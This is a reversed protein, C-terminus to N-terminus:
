RRGPPRSQAPCWPSSRRGPRRASAAARALVVEPAVMAGGRLRLLDRRQRVFFVEFGNLPAATDIRMLPAKGLQQMPQAVIRFLSSLEGGRELVAVHNRGRQAADGIGVPRLAADAGHTVLPHPIWLPAPERRLRKQRLDIRQQIANAVLEGALIESGIVEGTMKRRFPGLFEAQARANGDGDAREIGVPVRQASATALAIDDVDDAGGSADDGHCVFRPEDGANAAHHGAAHMRLVGANFCTQRRGAVDEFGNRRARAGPDGLERYSELFIM